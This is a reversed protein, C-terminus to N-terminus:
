WQLRDIANLLWVCAIKTQSTSDMAQALRLWPTCSGCTGSIKVFILWLESEEPLVPVV